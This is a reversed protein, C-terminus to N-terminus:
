LGEKEDTITKGTEKARIAGSLQRQRRRDLVEGKKGNKFCFKSFFKEKM